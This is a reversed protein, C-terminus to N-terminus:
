DQYLSHYLAIAWSALSQQMERRRGAEQHGGAITSSDDGRLHSGLAEAAQRAVDRRYRTAGAFASGVECGCVRSEGAGHIRSARKERAHCQAGAPGAVRV